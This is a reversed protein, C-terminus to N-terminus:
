LIYILSVKSDLEDNKVGRLGLFAPHMNIIKHMKSDVDKLYSEETLRNQGMLGYNFRYIAFGTAGIQLSTPDVELENLLYAVTFKVLANGRIRTDTLWPYTAANVKKRRDDLHSIDDNM